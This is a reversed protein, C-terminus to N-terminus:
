DTITFLQKNVFEGMGYPGLERGFGSRKVGGFPLDAGGVNFGNIHVMGVSLQDAVKQARQEDTSFVSGGLGYSSSNALEIAEQATKVRYVMAFPGFPEETYGRGTKPIDTVVRPAVYYGRLDPRTGGVLVEAGAARADEIQSLLGEAAAQSPLPADEGAPRNAPDGPTLEAFLKTLE